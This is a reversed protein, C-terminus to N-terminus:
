QRKRAPTKAKTKGKPGAKGRAPAKAKAPEVPSAVYPFAAGLKTAIRDHVWHDDWWEIPNVPLGTLLTTFHLHDGAALGTAGSRGVVAGRKVETGEAVDLSSLHGYLTMLGYGHDLVVANGYIGFYRSLVVVGDNAAPIPVSRTAALDFGLHYQQDVERGGYVYTRRDAFASM